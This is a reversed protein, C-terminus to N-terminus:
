ALKEALTLVFIQKGTLLATFNPKPYVLYMKTFIYVAQLM